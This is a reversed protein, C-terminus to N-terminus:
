RRQRRIIGTNPITGTKDKRRKLIDFVKETAKTPDGLQILKKTIGDPNERIRKKVNNLYESDEKPNKNEYGQTANHSTIGRRWGYATDPILFITAIASGVIFPYILSRKM